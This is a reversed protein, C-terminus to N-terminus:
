EDPKTTGANGARASDPGSTTEDKGSPVLAKLGGIAGLNMSELASAPVVIVSTLGSRMTEFLMNMGRLHLATPHSRYVEGATAFMEAVKVESEGLILRAQREREAEAMRALAEQLQPPVRIDLIQVSQVKVGWAETQADLVTTLQNDLEHRHSLITALDNRGIIDRIAGQAAGQVARAYDVVAVTAKGADLVRWYVITEVTLSAGDKTLTQDAQLRDTVLRMDVTFPSTEIYPLLFFLGPGRVGVYRGLRLVVKRQWESCLRLSPLVIGLAIAGLLIFFVLLRGDM